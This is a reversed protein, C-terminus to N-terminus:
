RPKFLLMILFARRQEVTSDRFWKVAQRANSVWLNAQETTFTQCPHYDARNRQKQLTVAINAFDVM